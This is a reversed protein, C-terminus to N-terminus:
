DGTCWACKPKPEANDHSAPCMCCGWQMSGSEHWCHNTVRRCTWIAGLRRWPSTPLLRFQWQLPAQQHHNAPVVCIQRDCELCRDRGWQHRAHNSNPDGITVWDAKQDHDLPVTRM